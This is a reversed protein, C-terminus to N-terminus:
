RLKRVLRCLLSDGMWDRSELTLQVPSKKKKNTQYNLNLKRLVKEICSAQVLHIDTIVDYLTAEWLKAPLGYKDKTPRLMKDITYESIGWAKLSGFENWLDTRLFGLKKAILDLERAKGKNLPLVGGV